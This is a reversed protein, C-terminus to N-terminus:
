YVKVVNGNNNTRQQSNVEQTVVGHYKFYLWAGMPFGGNCGFGCLLGCCAIVDNASLSVNLNYKICFRDSLSEVAGFAWCSGCHGLLFWFWLTITSWLLVNNLIYGV